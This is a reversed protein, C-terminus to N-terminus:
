EAGKTKIAVFARINRAVQKPTANSKLVSGGFIQPQQETDYEDSPLFLHSFENSNLGFWHVSSDFPADVGGLPCLPKVRKRLRPIGRSWKWSQKFVAPCEGIACGAFGCGNVTLQNLEKDTNWAGFYFKEHALKGKELHKALKLLRRKYLAKM